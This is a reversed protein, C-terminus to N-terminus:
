KALIETLHELAIMRTYMTELEGQDALNNRHYFRGHLLKNENKEEWVMFRGIMQHFVPTDLDLWPLSDFDEQEIIEILFDFDRPGDVGKLWEVLYENILYNDVEEITKM